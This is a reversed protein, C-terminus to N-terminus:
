SFVIVLRGALLTEEKGQNLDEKGRVVVVLVIQESLAAM